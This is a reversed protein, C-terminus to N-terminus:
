ATSVLQAANTVYPASVVKVFDVFAFDAQCSEMLRNVVGEVTIDLAQDSFFGGPVLCRDILVSRFAAFIEEDPKSPAHWFTELGDQHTIGPMDYVAYGLTIVPVGCALALTGTTSNVTILGLASRVILAIDGSEVYDVRAAVNHAEALTAILARWNSLGNDLPHEKIVLRLDPPAYVAFSKIVNEIAVQMSKYPSHFRIQADSGLQLPFLMYPTGDAALKALIAASRAAATRAGSFRRLWGLGEHLPSWPRHNRWHPFQWRLLMNALDYLIAEGSRRRFSFPVPSHAPVQALMKACALYYAPDRPLQSYGNVGGHEFTVWDPRIYGEDFVHVPVNLDRCVLVAARHLPRCDGFLLVNTIEEERLIRKLFNPWEAETGTYDIGGNSFGWFLKDGGNFNIKRVDVGQRQLALGIRHFLPGVLSQLLLVKRRRQRGAFLDFAIVDHM